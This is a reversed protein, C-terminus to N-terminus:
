CPEWECFRRLLNLGPEGSKEPHFQTAVLNKVGIVSPFSIGYCTVGLVHDTDVPAPYFGHVFYFEDDGTIASLVPHASIDRISNWGMHPIKIRSGDDDTKINDPFGRVEGQILGLCETDNEESHEMFIQTGLCIGLIPKGRAFADKIAGDLGRKKLSVMASGAAGVGPFIIRQVGDIVKLDNTVRCRCGIYKIAREVSTLNGAEYDIIAIM